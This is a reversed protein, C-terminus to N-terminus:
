KIESQGSQTIQVKMEPKVLRFKGKRVREFLIYGKFKKYGVCHQQIIQFTTNIYSTWDSYRPPLIGGHIEIVRDKIANWEAEEGLDEFANVVDQINVSGYLPM